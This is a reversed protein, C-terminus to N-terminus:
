GLYERFNEVRHFTHCNADHYNAAANIATRSLVLLDDGDIVFSMYQFGVEAPDMHRYDLLIRDVRWHVLDASSELAMVNRQAPTREDVCLNGVAVYRGSVEDWLVHTKSNSGTPMDVFGAFELKEEWGTMKLAVALGHSPTCDNIQLRLLDVLSGDPATVVSGELLGGSKGKPAGPWSKDYFLPPSVTWNESALLDASEDCSLICIGHGDAAWAGYDISTCLRGGHVIIPTPTHQWGAALRSGSGRFLVTPSAWTRGEDDSRGVLVDGYEGDTALMYLGGRHMFLTGWYCPFLDTVYRWSEGGDDSRYVLTLNQPQGAAYLDMSALLAGSPLKVISPSCLARGSFAYLEDEPHLYNVVAGPYEGTRVYRLASCGDDGCREIRLEYDTHSDLGEIRVVPSDAEVYMWLDYSKRKRYAVEHPGDWGHDFWELEVGNLEPALRCVFPRQGEDARHFPRYPHYNWSTVGKM